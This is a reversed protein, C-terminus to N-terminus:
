KGRGRFGEVGGGVTGLDGGQHVGGGQLVAVGYVLEELHWAAGGGRGGWRCRRRGPRGHRDLAPHVGLQAAPLPLAGGVAEREEEGVLGRWTLWNCVQERKM